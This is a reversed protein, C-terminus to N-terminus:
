FGYPYGRGATSILLFSPIEAQVRRPGRRMQGPRRSLPGADVALWFLVDNARELLRQAQRPFRNWLFSAAVLDLCAGARLEDRMVSTDPNEPPHSLM